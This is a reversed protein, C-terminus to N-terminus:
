QFDAYEVITVAANPDGKWLRTEMAALQMKSELTRAAGVTGSSSSAESSPDRNQLVSRAVYGGAAFVVLALLALALATSRRGIKPTSVDM